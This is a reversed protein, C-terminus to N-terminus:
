ERNIGLVNPDLGNMDGDDNWGVILIDHTALDTSNVDVIVGGAYGRLDYDFIGLHEMADEIPSSASPKYLLFTYDSPDFPLDAKTFGTLLFIIVIFIIIYKKFRKQTEVTLTRGM